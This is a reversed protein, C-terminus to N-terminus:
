QNFTENPFDKTLLDITEVWSQEFREVTFDKAYDYGQEGMKKREEPNKLLYEM